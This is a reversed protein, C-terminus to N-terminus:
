SGHVDEDYTFPAAAYRWEDNLHTYLHMRSTNLWVFFPKGADKAKKMFTEAHPIVETADFDRMREITLPGTDEITQKGVRGFRPDVTPDDKDTARAHLVGRTLYKKAFAAPGGP